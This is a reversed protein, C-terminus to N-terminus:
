ENDTENNKAQQINLKIENGNEFTISIEKIGTIDASEIYDKVEYVKAIAEIEKQRAEAKLAAKEEKQRKIELKELSEEILTDSKIDSKLAEEPDVIDLWQVPMGEIALPDKTQQEEKGKYNARGDLKREVVDALVGLEPDVPEPPPAKDTTAVGWFDELRENIDTSVQEPVKVIFREDPFDLLTTNNHADIAEPTVLVPLNSIEQSKAKVTKSYVSEPYWADKYNDCFSEDLELTENKRKLAKLPVVVHKDHQFWRDHIQRIDMPLKDVANLFMYTHTYGLRFDHEICMNLFAKALILWSPYIEKDDPMINHKNEYDNKGVLGKALERFVHALCFANVFKDFTIVKVKGLTKDAFEYTSDLLMSDVEEPVPHYVISYLWIQDKVEKYKNRKTEEATMDSKKNTTEM